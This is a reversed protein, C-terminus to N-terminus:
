DAELYYADERAKEVHPAHASALFSAKNELPASMNSSHVEQMDETEVMPAM